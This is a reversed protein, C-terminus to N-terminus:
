RDIGSKDRIIRVCDHSHTMSVLHGGDLVHQTGPPVPIVLDNRGHIRLLNAPAVALGDWDFVAHCMARIFGADSASFMRAMDVPLKAAFQQLFTLPTLDILPHLISLLRSIEEKNIASGILVLESVPTTKAMECAVMGGLSCGVLTDGPQIPHGALIRRALAPISSEGAYVPWEIVSSNDLTRWAGPFM